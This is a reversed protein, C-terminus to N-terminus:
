AAQEQCPLPDDLARANRAVSSRYEPNFFIQSVAKKSKPFAHVLAVLVSYSIKRQGNYISSLYSQSIGLKEAYEEQTLPGQFSKLLEIPDM